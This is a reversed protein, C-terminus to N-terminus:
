RQSKQLLPTNHITRVFKILVCTQTVLSVLKGEDTKGNNEEDLNLASTIYERAKAHIKVLSENGSARSPFFQMAMKIIKVVAVCIFIFGLLGILFPVISSELTDNFYTSYSYLLRPLIM